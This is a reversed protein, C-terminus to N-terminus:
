SILCLSMKVMLKAYDIQFAVTLYGSIDYQTISIFKVVPTRNGPSAHAKGEAEMDLDTEPLISIKFTEPNVEV